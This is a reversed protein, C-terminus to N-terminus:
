VAPVIRYVTGRYDIVYLEGDTDEGFSPIRSSGPPTLAPQAQFESLATGDYRFSWVEASTYDAFLYAGQLAPIDAGRYVYGGTISQTILKDYDHIPDVAGPLDCVEEGPRCISGERNRWGYNEGGPSDAPQFDIEERTSQGVDGIYLDGNARDFSFRWPNRLGYAWIEPRAATNGVFPNEAPIGYPDGTDVDIRLIKGLLTGLNQGNNNPDNGSGGDGLAIYLYGDNPGFALMGGNHNAFPQEVELLIVESDADALDPDASSVTYRAIRTDLDENIYNVFFAGNEAYNPHFALGLLGQEGSDNGLRTSIDLFPAALRAGDKVIWIRGGQEVVFLRAADGPPSAVYLPASFGTAVAQLAVISGPAPPPCGPLALSAITATLLALLVLQRTTFRKM